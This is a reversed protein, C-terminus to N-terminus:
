YGVKVMAEAVCAILRRRLSALCSLRADPLPEHDVQRCALELAIELRHEDLVYPAGTTSKLFFALGREELIRDVVEGATRHLAIDILKGM